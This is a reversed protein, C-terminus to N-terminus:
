CSVSRIVEALDSRGKVGLKATATYIYGEVTRVSLSVAAAIDRNSLGQAVLMAIEHERRTFPLASSSAVIAPSVAGGCLTALARVRAASTIASGSRGARRHSLVAHGAADAAALRDGMAEFDTSVQDLQYGDDRDLAEAYRAAVTVRPGEVMRTLAQLRACASTDGFQVATQLCWVERALQDHERTFEAAQIALQRAQTLRQRAAALWAQALLDTSTIYEYAPHAHAGAHWMTQEAADADGRRALAQSRLLHFRHFSNAVHFDNALQEDLHDPLYQLAATLDGAALAAMGLIQAGSTRVSTPEARQRRVEGEAIDRAEVIRGGAALAFVHFEALPQRLFKEQVGGIISQCATAKAVAMDPQGLEGYAMCEANLAMTTGSTDLLSYDVGAMVDLVDVPRAALSLQSARFVLLHHRLPGDATKLAEDVLQWSREPSRMSWLLNSARLIVKNLWDQRNSEDRDIGDLVQEALEGKRQMFLAYALPVRTPEGAGADSAANLLRQALEFNLLSTAATAAPVLVDPDPPLDSELWLLGRRVAISGGDGRLVAAVQGRLRRLRSPGCRKVRVEAYLPHGVHVMEDVTRILERQEAEEIATHDAISRLTHWEIPEAVAVLDVVDRVSDPVAGIHSDVVDALTASMEAPGLWHASGSEVVLRGARYEQEVLRRLFLANGETLKWLLDACASDPEAGLAAAVLSDADDRSLASLDRRALVDDKWLATLADPVSQGARLTLILTAARTQALRHVVLVSLEDLLHADDVCVLLRDPEADACLAAIVDCVLALPSGASDQAWQSFAGLPISASTATAAVRRVLWGADQAASAVERVLRSKGIGPKGALAVGRYTTDGILRTVEALEEHRGVLPWHELM